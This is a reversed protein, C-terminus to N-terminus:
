NVKYGLRKLFKINEKRLPKIKKFKKLGKSRAATIVEVGKGKIVGKKMRNISKYGLFATNSNNYIFM